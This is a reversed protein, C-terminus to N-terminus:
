QQKKKDLNIAYIAILFGVTCSVATVKPTKGFIPLDFTDLKLNTGPYIFNFICSFSVVVLGLAIIMKQM